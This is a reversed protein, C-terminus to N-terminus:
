KAEVSELDINDAIYRLNCRNLMWTKNRAGNKYDMIQQREDDSLAEVMETIRYQIADAGLIDELFDLAVRYEYFKEDLLYKAALEPDKRFRDALDVATSNLERVFLALVEEYKEATTIDFWYDNEAQISKSAITNAARPGVGYKKYSVWMAANIQISEPWLNWKSSYFSVEFVMSGITQKLARQSKLYKFGTAESLKIIFSAIYDGASSYNDNMATRKIREKGM